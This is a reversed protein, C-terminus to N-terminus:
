RRFHHRFKGIATDHGERTWQRCSDNNALQAGCSGASVMLSACTIRGSM